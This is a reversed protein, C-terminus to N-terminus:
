KLKSVGFLCIITYKWVLGPFIKIQCFNDPVHSDLNLSIEWIYLHPFSGDEKGLKGEAIIECNM